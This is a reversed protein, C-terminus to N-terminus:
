GGLAEEFAALADPGPGRGYHRELKRRSRHFRALMRAKAADDLREVVRAQDLDLLYAAPATSGGAILVNMLNLDRHIVGGEFTQRLLAGAARWAGVITEDDAV